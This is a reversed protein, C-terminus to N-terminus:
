ASGRDGSRLGNLREILNAGFKGGLLDLLVEDGQDDAEGFGVPKGGLHGPTAQVRRGVLSNRRGDLLLEALLKALEDVIVGGHHAAGGRGVQGLKHLLHRGRNNNLLHYGHELVEDGIVLVANAQESNVNENGNSLNHGLLLLGTM